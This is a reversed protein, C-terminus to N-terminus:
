PLCHVNKCSAATPSKSFVTAEWHIGPLSIAQQASSHRWSLFMYMLPHAHMNLTLTNIDPPSFLAIGTLIHLRYIKFLLRILQRWTASSLMGRQKRQESFGGPFAKTTQCAAAFGISSVGLNGWDRILCGYVNM